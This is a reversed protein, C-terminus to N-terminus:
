AQYRLIAEVVAEPKIIAMCRPITEEGFAPDACLSKDKEDGDGLPVVRSKWCGEGRIAEDCCRLAGVTHLLQQRPYSTWSVPERGGAVCVCAKELAAALHQVFTVGCLVGDANAVLRILQRTDTKGVLNIVNRLPPHHHGSEGIQVFQIRGRLMDVVRQYGETGYHKTTYDAKRGANVVWFRTPRQTIEQVQNLWGKEQASLWVHPRNTLLPVPVGLVSSLHDCYGQLVHVARQNCEHVLPYHMEIREAEPTAPVVDPSHEWIAPATTEVAVTYKGPHAKHLSRVAATMCLVDGPCLNNVLLISKANSVDRPRWQCTQCDAVTVQEPQRAPHTCAFVKLQPQGPCTGCQRTVARGDADRAEDGAFPCVVTQLTLPQGAAQSAWLARYQEATAADVNEGRCIERLRGFMEKKYRPCFGEKECECNM